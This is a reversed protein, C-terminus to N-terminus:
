LAAQQALPSAWRAGNWTLNLYNGLTLTQTASTAAIVIFTGNIVPALSGALPAYLTLTQGLYGPALSYTGNTAAVSVGVQTITVGSKNLPIPVPTATAGGVTLTVGAGQKDTLAYNMNTSRSNVLTGAPTSM